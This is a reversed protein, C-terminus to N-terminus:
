VSIFNSLKSIRFPHLLRSLFLDHYLKDHCGNIKALSSQNQTSTCIAEIPM